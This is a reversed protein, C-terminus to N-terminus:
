TPEPRPKTRVFKSEKCSYLLGFLGLEPCFLVAEDKREVGVQGHVYIPLFAM